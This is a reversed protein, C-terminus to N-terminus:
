ISAPLFAFGQQAFNEDFAIKRAWEFRTFHKRGSGRSEIIGPTAASAAGVVFDNEKYSPSSGRVGTKLIELAISSPREGCDQVETKSSALTAASAAGVLLRNKCSPSSGQVKRKRHRLLITASAAREGRVGNEIVG